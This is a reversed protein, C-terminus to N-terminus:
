QLYLYEVIAMGETENRIAKAIPLGQLPLVCKVAEMYTITATFFRRSVFYASEGRRRRHTLIMAEKQSNHFLYTCMRIYSAMALLHHLAEKMSTTIKGQYELQRLADWSSAAQIEYLVSLDLIILSPLRYIKPKVEIIGSESMFDAINLKYKEVDQVFMKESVARRENNMTISAKAAVFASLLSNTAGPTTYSYIDRTFSTMASDDGQLAVEEDPNLYIDKYKSILEDIGVGRSKAVARRLPKMSDKAQLRINSLLSKFHKTADPSNPPLNAKTRYLYELDHAKIAYYGAQTKSRVRCSNYLTHAKLLQTWNNLPDTRAIEAYLDALKSLFGVEAQKRAATTRFKDRETTVLYDQKLRNIEGRVDM